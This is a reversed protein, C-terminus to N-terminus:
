PRRRFALAIDARAVRANGIFVTCASHVRGESAAPHAHLRACFRLRAPPTVPRTFRAKEIGVFYADYSPGFCEAALLRATQAMAEVLLVGPVIPYGPFHGAFYPENGHVDLYACFNGEGAEDLIAGTPLAPTKVGLAARIDQHIM